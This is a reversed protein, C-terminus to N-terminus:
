SSESWAAIQDRRGHLIRAILVDDGEQRYYIVYNEVAFSRVGVGFEPRAVAWGRSNPWCISDTSATTSSDTPRQRLLTRPSMPGSKRRPGARRSFIASLVGVVKPRAGCSRTIQDARRTAPKLYHAIMLETRSVRSRTMKFEYRRGGVRCWANKIGKFLKAIGGHTATEVYYPWYAAFIEYTKRGLLLDFKEKFVRDIEECSGRHRQAACSANDAVARGM